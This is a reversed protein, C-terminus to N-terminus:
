EFVISSISPDEFWECGAFQQSLGSDITGLFPDFEIDRVWERLAAADSSPLRAKTPFPHGSLLYDRQAQLVKEIITM